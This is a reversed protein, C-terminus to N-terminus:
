FLPGVENSKDLCSMDTMQDIRELFARLADVIDIGEVVKAQLAENADDNDSLDTQNSSYKAIGAVTTLDKIESLMTKLNEVSQRQKSAEITIKTNEKKIQSHDPMTNLSRENIGHTLTDILEIPRIDKRKCYGTIRKHATKSITVTHKKQRSKKTRWNREIRQMKTKVTEYIMESSIMENKIYKWIQEETHMENSQKRIQDELWAKQNEDNQSIWTLHPNKPM